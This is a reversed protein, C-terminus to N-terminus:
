HNTELSIHNAVRQVRHGKRGTLCKVEKTLSVFMNQDKCSKNSIKNLKIQM